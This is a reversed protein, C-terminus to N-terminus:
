RLGAGAALSPHILVQSQWRPLITGMVMIACGGHQNKQMQENVNYFFISRTDM